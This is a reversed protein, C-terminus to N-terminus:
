YHCVLCDNSAQKEKHCNICFGMTHEVAREAVTMQTLDGHCTACEVEARIHPAHNFRVHAEELFGYVRQWRMDEGREAHDRLAQIRPEAADGIDEHCSMCVNISPLGAAPGQNVGSHCDECYLAIDETHIMHPFEIPQVPEPKINIFHRAAEGISRHEPTFTPSSWRRAQYPDTTPNTYGPVNAQPGCGLLAAAIALILLVTRGRADM